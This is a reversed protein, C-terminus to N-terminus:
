QEKGEMVGNEMRTKLADLLLDLVKDKDTLTLVVSGVKDLRQRVKEDAKERVSMGEIICLVIGILCCVVPVGVITTLGFLEWFRAFHILLDIGAAIMVGGEYLLFKTLSRSLGYSTRAEGRMKAKRIGSVLDVAMAMLVVLSVIVVILFMQQTGQLLENM